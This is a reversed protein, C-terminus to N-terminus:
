TGRRLSRGVVVSPRAANAVWGGLLLSTLPVTYNYVGSVLLNYVLIYMLLIRILSYLDTIALRVVCSNRIRICM